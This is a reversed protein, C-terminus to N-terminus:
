KKETRAQQTIPHKNTELQRKDFMFDLKLLWVQNESHQFIFM